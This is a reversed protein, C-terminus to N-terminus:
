TRRDSASLKLRRIRRVNIADANNGTIISSTQTRLRRLRGRTGIGGIDNEVIDSYEGFIVRLGESHERRRETLFAHM